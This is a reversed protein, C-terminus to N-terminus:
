RKQRKKRPRHKPKVIKNPIWFIFNYKVALMRLVFIIFMLLTLLLPSDMWHETFLYLIAFLIAPEAYFDTYLVAPTRNMAIDRLLGGGAATLPAFFIIGAIGLHASEAKKVGIYAFVVLGVADLIQILWEIRPFLKYLAIAIAVAAIIVFLYSCDQLYFPTKNLIMDRITGGGVATLFACVFIGFIDYKQKLAATAGYFAFAFSGILDLITIIM